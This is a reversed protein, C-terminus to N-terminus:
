PKRRGRRPVVLVVGIAAVAAVAISTLLLFLDPRAPTTGFPIDPGPGASIVFKDHFTANRSSMCSGDAETGGPPCYDTEAAIEDAAVTFKVAGFGTGLSRTNANGGMAHVFYGMEADGGGIDVPYLSRGGTGSVVVVPGRGKTYNDDAGDDVVCDANFRDTSPVSRCNPGLRLQKSRQYTHDHAQLILDVKLDVLKDFMEQGMSCGPKSGVTICQKHVGLVVWPINGSRADDVAGVVWNYHPSGTGYDISTSGRVGATIMIVRVLPSGGPYDFYYERGYGEDPIGPGGSIPVGLTFPCSVIYQAIDGGRDEGTDHNGAIIEVDDLASKISSCWGPEDSTYGLDGVALLFAASAGNLRKALALTDSGGPGDFDGSAGFM